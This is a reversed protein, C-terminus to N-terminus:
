IKIVTTMIMVLMTIPIKLYLIMVMIVLAADYVSVNNGDNCSPSTTNQSRQQTNHLLSREAGLGIQIQVDPLDDSSSTSSDYDCYDSIPLLCM